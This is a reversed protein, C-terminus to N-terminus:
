GITGQSSNPVPIFDESGNDSRVSTCHARPEEQHLVIGLRMHRSHIPLEQIVFDKIGNVPGWTGWLQIWNLVEPVNHMPADAAASYCWLSDLLVNIGQDLKPLLDWLVGDATEDPAHDAATPLAYLCTPPMCVVSGITTISIWALQILRRNCM